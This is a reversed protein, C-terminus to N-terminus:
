SCVRRRSSPGRRTPRARRVCTRNRYLDALRRKPTAPPDNRSQQSRLHVVPSAVFCEASHTAGFSYRCSTDDTTLAIELSMSMELWVADWLAYTNLIELLKQKSLLFATINTVCKATSEYKDGNNTLFDYLGVCHGSRLPYRRHVRESTAPHLQRYKEFTEDFHEEAPPHHYNQQFNDDVNIVSEQAGDDVSSSMLHHWRIYFGDEFATRVHATSLSHHDSANDSHHDNSSTRIRLSDHMSDTNASSISEEQSSTHHLVSNTNHMQNEPRDDHRPSRRAEHSSPTQQSSLTPRRNRHSEQWRLESHTADTDYPDLKWEEVLGNVLLYVGNLPDNKHWLFDQWSFSRAHLLPEHEFRRANDNLRARLLIQEIEKRQRVTLQENAVLWPIQGIAISASAAPMTSPIRLHAHMKKVTQELLDCDDVDLVGRARIHAIGRKATNHLLNITHRTKISIVTGPHTDQM